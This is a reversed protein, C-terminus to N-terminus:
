RGCGLWGRAGAQGAQGGLALLLRMALEVLLLLLLVVMRLLLRRRRVIAEDIAVLLLLLHIPLVIGLVTAIVWMRVRMGVLVLMRM